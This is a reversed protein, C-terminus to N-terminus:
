VDQVRCGALLEETLARPCLGTGGTTVAATAAATGLRLAEPLSDGRALALAFGGTFSDGAGVKSDVTVPPPIGHLRQGGGALVSGEAGHAVVVVRAVGRAALREALAASDAPTALPHGAATAAEAQDLRLVEPAADGPPPALLRALAPGSTDVILRAGPLAAGLRAPFDAAVGPPQSGSLVVVAGPGAAQALAALATEAMGADWEPGPLVFRYEAGTGAETVTLSQRTEGPGPFPIVEVGEGALLAALQAGAVGGLAVFARAQGGLLGVARAVNVGGGGPDHRPPGLRLKPGPVVRGVSASIDLAPNLTVTLIPASM